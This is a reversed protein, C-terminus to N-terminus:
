IILLRSVHLNDIRKWKKGKDLWWGKRGENSLLFLFFFFIIIIFMKDNEIFDVRTVQKWMKDIRKLKFEKKDKPHTLIKHKFLSLRNNDGTDSSFCHFPDGKWWRQKRIENSKTIGRNVSVLRFWNAQNTRDQKDGILILSLPNISNWSNCM